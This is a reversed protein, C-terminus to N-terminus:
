PDQSITVLKKGSSQRPISGPQVFSEHCEEACLHSLRKQVHHCECRREDQREREAPERLPAVQTGDSRTRGAVITTPTSKQPIPSPADCRAPFMM